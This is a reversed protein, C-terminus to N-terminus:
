AQPSGVAGGRRARLALAVGALGTALGVAALIWPLDPTGGGNKDGPSAVPAAASTYTQTSTGQVRLPRLAHTVLSQGYDLRVDVHYNGPRLSRSLIVPYGIATQPVLSDLVRRQDLVTSGGRDTIRLRLRPKVIVNGGNRLGIEVAPYGAETLAKVGQVLVHEIRRGPLNVEVAVITLHRLRIQISSGRKGVRTAAGTQVTLNQAVIGGVHEGQRAGRPVIIAFPIVRSEKPGLTIRRTSLVVWRGVDRRRASGSRYVAGSTRGTTADVAYLIATGTATGVNTLLLETHIKAGPKSDIIYYSQTAPVDPNFTVPRLAFSSEGALAAPVVVLAAAVACVHLLLRSL